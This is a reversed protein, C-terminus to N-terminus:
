GNVSVRRNVSEPNRDALTLSESAGEFGDVHAECSAHLRRFVERATPREEQM